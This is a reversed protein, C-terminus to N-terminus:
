DAPIESPPYREVRFAAPQNKENRHPTRYEWVIEAEPTVEIARGRNSEGILTNGNPFRQVTGRTRSYFKSAAGRPYEWVIERAIPDLEIVRSAGEGTRNDFVLINGNALVTADHPRLLEGQGWAWLFAGKEFDFIAITDQNRLTILLNSPAYLSDRRALAPRHMWHIFNAHLFDPVPGDPGSEIPLFSFLDPRSALMDHFSREELLEGDPSLIAVGNDALHTQSTLQPLWRQHRTLVALSGDPREVVDHHVPLERRWRLAGDWSLRLLARRRNERKGEAVMVLLDRNRALVAREWREVEGGSWSRLVEGAMDLLEVRRLAPLTVLNYGPHARERDWSVVGRAADEAPEEAWDVYGLTELRQLEAESLAPPADEEGRGCALVGALAIGVVFIQLRRMPGKLELSIQEDAPHSIGAAPPCLDFPYVKRRCGAV